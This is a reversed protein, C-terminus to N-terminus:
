LICARGTDEIMDKSVYHLTAVLRQRLVAYYKVLMSPTILCWLSRFMTHYVVGRSIKVRAEPDLLVESRCIVELTQVAFLLPWMCSLRLRWAMRPLQLVYQCAQDLHDVTHWTLHILLPRLRQLIAPNTLDEPEIKLQKLHERPLYCRGIALDKGLDKLINTMQLGQGFRIGLACLEQFKQPQWGQMYVKHIKTWFEGVVGAVYYTYLDLIALDPFPQVTSTTEGPFYQLDMEMGHTLTLVLERVLQQDVASLRMFLHFCAPLHYFLQYAEQQTQQPLLATRLQKLDDFSPTDLLFQKRFGRLIQVRQSRPFIATDAITDAIRCFLYALSVQRRVSGPLVRLSLYFSRSVNKLICQLIVKEALYYSHKDHLLLTGLRAGSRITM